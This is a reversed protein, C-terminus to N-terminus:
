IKDSKIIGLEICALNFETKDFIKANDVDLQYEYYENEKGPIPYKLKEEETLKVPKIVKWNWEESDKQSSFEPIIMGLTTNIVSPFWYIDREIDLKRLAKISEPTNTLLENLKESNNKYLLNSTYGCKMCFYMEITESNTESFCNDSNCIPCIIQNHM